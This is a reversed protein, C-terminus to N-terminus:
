RRRLMGRARRAGGRRAGSRAGAPKWISLVTPAGEYEKRPLNRGVAKEIGGLASMDSPCVFTIADGEREARATRGIRHVYDDPNEPVDYNIVHTIDDIDLGRAAVDTAVLINYSGDRFGELARQRLKQSLDGHIVAAKYGAKKLMKGVRDTRMKTRLFIIASDINEEDKLIDLLVRSKEEQRVPILLQRVQDVPKSVRGISIREPNRMMNFTLTQLEPAFTASFMMTQRERPLKALIRKIDPLFGMDLMRDAEDFILVELDKFNIRGSGMHDLLRGPTAVIIDCGRKLQDIQGNMNVGGYILVSRLKLAKCHEGIVEEVQVALERTPVLVLMRNRINQESALRTLAPLTFALTKGTGTQATAVLDKGTLAVPIAAEQVPTPSVIGQANLVSLCRSDIDFEEFTM